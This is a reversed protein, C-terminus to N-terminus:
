NIFEIRGHHLPEENEYYWLYMNELENAKVKEPPLMAFPLIVADKENVEIRYDAGNKILGYVLYDGYGQM